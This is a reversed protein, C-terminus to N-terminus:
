SRDERGLIATTPPDTGSVVAMKKFRRRSGKMGHANPGAGEGGPGSTEGSLVPRRRSLSGEKGSGEARSSGGGRKNAASSGEATRTM